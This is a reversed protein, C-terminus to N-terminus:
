ILVPLVPDVEFKAKTELFSNFISKPAPAPGAWHQSIFTHMFWPSMKRDPTWAGPETIPPMRPDAALAQARAGAETHDKLVTTILKRNIITSLKFPIQWTIGPSWDKPRNDPCILKQPFGSHRLYWRPFTPNISDRYLVSQLASSPSPLPAASACVVCISGRCKPPSQPCKM